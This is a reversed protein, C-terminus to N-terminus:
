SARRTSPGSGAAARDIPFAGYVLATFAQRWWVDFFYDKAAGVATKAQWVDPLTTMILTADLHSTHNSVFVGARRRGDLNDLGYCARSLENRLLPAHMGEADSAHLAHRQDAGLRDPLRHRGREEVYPEASRPVLPRRGWRFGEAMEKLEDRMVGDDGGVARGRDHAAAHPLLHDVPSPGVTDTAMELADRLSDGRRFGLRAVSKPDGGVIIVDGAHDRGHAGWYWM